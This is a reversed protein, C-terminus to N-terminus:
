WAPPSGNVCHNVVSRLREVTFPKRLTIDAGLILATDLVSVDRTEGGGSIAIIKIGPQLERLELITQIGDRNPMFVDTIVIDPGLELFDQVGEEGDGANFVLHGDAELIRTITRSVLENDEVVLVRKRPPLETWAFPAQQIDQDMKLAANSKM